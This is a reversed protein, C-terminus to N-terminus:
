GVAFARYPNISSSYHNRADCGTPSVSSFRILQSFLLPTAGSLSHFQETICPMGMNLITNWSGVRTKHAGLYRRRVLVLVSDTELRRERPDVTSMDSLSHGDPQSLVLTCRQLHYGLHERAFPAATPLTVMASGYQATVVMGARNEKYYLAIVPCM